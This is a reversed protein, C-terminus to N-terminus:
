KKRILSKNEKKVELSQYLLNDICKDVRNPEYQYSFNIKDKDVEDNIKSANEIVFKIRDKLMFIDKNTRNKRM